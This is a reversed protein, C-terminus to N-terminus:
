ELLGATAIGMGFMAATSVLSPLSFKSLGSIGHGSTCGRAIRAGLVMSWGGAVARLISATTEIEVGHFRVPGHLLHNLVAASCVIGASFVVSGTFLTRSSDVNSTRRLKGEFWRVVDEYGASAGVAHGTLYVTALQALGIVLGGYAPPVLGPQMLHPQLRDKAFAIKMVALCMPVWILLLVLPSIGLAIFTVPLLTLLTKPVREPEFPRLAVQGSCRQSARNRLVRRGM